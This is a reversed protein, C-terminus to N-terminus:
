SRPESGVREMCERLQALARHRVVRVNGVSIDVSAAIAQADQEVCFTLMVVTREREGLRALCRELREVDVRAEGLVAHAGDTAAGLQSALEGRRRARRRENHAMMRATGLVFSAIQAPDRVEGARLRELVRALVDQALDAALEEDRLHRLGFLYVRRSFRACLEREAHRGEGPPLSAIARALDAESADTASAETSVGALIRM